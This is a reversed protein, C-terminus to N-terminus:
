WGNGVIRGEKRAKNNIKKSNIKRREKHVYETSPQADQKIESSFTEERTFESIVPLVLLTFDM